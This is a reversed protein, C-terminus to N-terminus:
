TNRWWCTLAESRRMLRIPEGQHAITFDKRLCRTTKSCLVPRPGVGPTSSPPLASGRGARAAGCRAPQLDASLEGSVSEGGGADLSRGAWDKVMRDQVTKFLREVRGKAQPSHAPILGVGLERWFQSTPKVGALQDDV